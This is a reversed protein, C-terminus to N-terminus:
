DKDRPRPWQANPPPRMGPNTRRPVAGSPPRRVTGQGGPIPSSKRASPSPEPLPSSKRAPPQPETRPAGNPATRRQQWLPVPIPPQEEVFPSYEPRMFPLLAPDVLDEESADRPLPRQHAELLAQLAESTKARGALSAVAGSIGIVILIYLLYLLLNIIVMFLIRAADDPAPIRSMVLNSLVSTPSASSISAFLLRLVLDSVETLAAAVLGAMAGAAQQHGYDPLDLWAAALLGSLAGLGFFLIVALFYTLQSSFHVSLTLGISLAAGFGGAVLGALMKSSM